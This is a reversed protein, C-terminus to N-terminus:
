KGFSIFFSTLFMACAHNRVFDYVKLGATVNQRGKKCKVSVLSDNMKKKM